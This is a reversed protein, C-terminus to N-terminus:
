RGKSGGMSKPMASKWYADSKPTWGNGNLKFTCKSILRKCPADCDEQPCTSLPEETEGDADTVTLRYKLHNRPQSNLKRDLMERLSPQEEPSAPFDFM